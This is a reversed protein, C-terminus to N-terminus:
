MKGNLQQQLRDLYKKKYYYEKVLLLETETTSGDKYNEIIQKVPEFIENHLVTLKQKLDNSGSFEDTDMLSENLELVEALFDPPLEYKEEEEVLNKLLLVYKITEDQNQFIKWAKNIQSSIELAEARAKESENIFYDPHYKKSLQFFKNALEKTNVKLRVPIEFLQFYTM